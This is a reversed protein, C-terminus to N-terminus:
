HARKTNKRKVRNFSPKFLLIGPNSCNLGSLINIRSTSFLLKKKDNETQWSFCFKSKFISNFQFTINDRQTIDTCIYFKHKLPRFYMSDFINIRVYDCCKTM